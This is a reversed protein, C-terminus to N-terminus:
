PLDIREPFARIAEDGIDHGFHEKPTTLKPAAASKQAQPVAVGLTIALAIVSAAARAAPRRRTKDLAM